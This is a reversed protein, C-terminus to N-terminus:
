ALAVQTPCALQVSVLWPASGQLPTTLDMAATACQLAAGPPQDGGPGGGGGGCGTLGVQAFFPLGQGGGVHVGVHFKVCDVTM